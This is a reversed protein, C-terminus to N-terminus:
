SMERPGLDTIRVSGLLDWTYSRGSAHVLLEGAMSSRSHTLAHLLHLADGTAAAPERDGVGTRVRREIKAEHEDKWRALVAVTYRGPDTDVLKACKQCLWIGNTASSRDERSMSEDYRPGGPSAACIHAAVGVNISREPDISPGHTVQPCEPNSCTSASRKGLQEKTTTSFDDRPM